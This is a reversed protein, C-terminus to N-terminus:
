PLETTIAGQLTKQNNREKSKTSLYDEKDLEYLQRRYRDALDYWTSARLAFREAPPPHLASMFAQIALYIRVTNREIAGRPGGIYVPNGSRDTSIVTFGVKDAGLMSFYIKGALRLMTSSRYACSVQVFTRGGELPMASLRIRHDMTGLPGADAWLLLDLYGQRREVKRQQYVVQHVEHPAQYFKRGLYLTLHWGQPPGQYTCAKVNPILFLIECWNAPPQLAESVTDFAFAFIGYADVYVKDGQVASELVLPLGFSNEELGALNRHYAQRLLLEDQHPIETAGTAGTALVLLWSLVVWFIKM